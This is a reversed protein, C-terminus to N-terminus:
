DVVVHHDFTRAASCESSDSFFSLFFRRHTEFYELGRNRYTSPSVPFQATAASKLKMGDPGM